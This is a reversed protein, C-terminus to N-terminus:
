PHNWPKSSSFLSTPILYVWIHASSAHKRFLRMCWRRNLNGGAVRYNWSCFTCFMHHVVDSFILIYPLKSCTQLGWEDGNWWWNKTLITYYRIKSDFRGWDAMNEELHLNGYSPPFVELWGYENDYEISEWLITWQLGNYVGIGIFMWQWGMNLNHFCRNDWRINM